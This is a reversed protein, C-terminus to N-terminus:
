PNASSPSTPASSRASDVLAAVSALALGLAIGALTDSPWHARLMVRAMAVLVILTGALVRLVVRAPGPLSGALHIIAGAFAAAATAHGSPFGFDPSEPRPREFLMKLLGEAVPAAIMLTAWVWWRRRAREFVVFLLVTGPLLVRWSGARNVFEMVELVPPSALGLLADRVVADVPNVSVLTIAAAVALFCGTSSFLVWRGM